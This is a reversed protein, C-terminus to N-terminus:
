ESLWSSRAACKRLSSCFSAANWWSSVGADVHDGAVVDHELRMALREIRQKQGGLRTRQTRRALGHKEPKQAVRRTETGSEIRGRHLRQLRAVIQFEDIQPCDGHLAHDGGLMHRRQGLGLRNESPVGTM